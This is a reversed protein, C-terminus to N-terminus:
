SCPRGQFLAPPWTQEWLYTGNLHRGTHGYDLACFCVYGDHQTCCNCIGRPSALNDRVLPHLVNRSTAQRIEDAITM